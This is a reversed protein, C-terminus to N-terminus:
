CGEKSTSTRKCHNHNGNAITSIKKTSTLAPEQGALLFLEIPDVQRGRWYWRQIGNTWIEAPGDERHLQDNRYWYQTGHEDVVPNNM